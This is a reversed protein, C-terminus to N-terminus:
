AGRRGTTCRALLGLATAPVFGHVPARLEVFTRDRSSVVNDFGIPADFGAFKVSGVSPLHEGTPVPVAGEEAGSFAFPTLFCARAHKRVRATM